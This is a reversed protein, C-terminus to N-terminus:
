HFATLVAGSRGVAIVAIPPGFGGGGSRPGGAITKRARDEVAVHPDDAAGTAAAHGGIVAVNPFGAISFIPGVGGIRTELAAIAALHDSEVVLEEQDAPVGAASQLVINPGGRVPHSPGLDEGVVAGNGFGSDAASLKTGPLIKAGDNEIVQDIDQVARVAAGSRVPEIIDPGRRVADGPGLDKGVVNVAVGSLINRTPSGRRDAEVIGEIDQATMVGTIGPADVDARVNPGGGITGSPAGHGSFEGLGVIM